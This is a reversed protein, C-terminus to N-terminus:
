QPHLEALRVLRDAPLEGRALAQQQEGVSEHLGAVGAGLHEPPAPKLLLQGPQGAEGQRRHHTLDDGADGGVLAPGIELVIEGDHADLPPGLSGGRARSYGLRLLKEMCMLASPLKITSVTARPARTSRKARGSRRSYKYSSASM